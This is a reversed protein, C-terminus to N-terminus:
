PFPECFIFQSNIMILALCTAKAVVMPKAPVINNVEALALASVIVIWLPSVTQPSEWFYLREIPSIM